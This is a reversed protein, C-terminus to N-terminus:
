IGAASSWDEAARAAAGECSPGASRQYAPAARSSPALTVRGAISLCCISVIFVIPTFESSSSESSAIDVYTKTAFRNQVDFRNKADIGREASGRCDM